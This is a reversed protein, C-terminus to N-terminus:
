ANNSIVQNLLAVSLGYIVQKYTHTAFLRSRDKSSCMMIVLCQQDHCSYIYMYMLVKCATHSNFCSSGGGGCSCKAAEVSPRRTSTERESDALFHTVFLSLPLIFSILSHCFSVAMRGRREEEERLLTLREKRERDEWESARAAGEGGEAMPPSATRAVDTTALFYSWRELEAIKTCGRRRATCPSRLLNKKQKMM